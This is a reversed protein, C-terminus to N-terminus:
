YGYYNPAYGCRPDPYWRGWSDYYGNPNCYGGYGYYSYGPYYGYGYGYYSRYPYGYGFYVGGRSFGRRDGSFRRENSFGRAGSFGRQGSFSQGGRQVGGGGRQGSFSQGGRQAGGGGGRVAGGGGRQGGGGGRNQAFTVDPTVMMLAGALLGAMALKIPTSIFKM